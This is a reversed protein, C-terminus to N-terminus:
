PNCQRRGMQGQARYGIGNLRSIQLARESDQMLIQGLTKAEILGPNCYKAQVGMGTFSTMQAM